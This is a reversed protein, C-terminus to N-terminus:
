HPSHRVGAIFGADYAARLAASVSLVSVEHFDLSDRKQEELTAIGLHRKAVLAFMEMADPDDPSISTAAPQSAGSPADADAEASRAQSVQLIDGLMQLTTAVRGLHDAIKPMTVEFFVQGMRTQFFAPGSV